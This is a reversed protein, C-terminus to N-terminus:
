DKYGIGILLLDKYLPTYKRKELTVKKYNLMIFCKIEKEMRFNNIAKEYQKHIFEYILEPNSCNSVLFGRSLGVIPDNYNLTTSIFPNIVYINKFNLSSIFIEINDPTIESMKIFMSKGNINIDISKDFNSLFTIDNISIYKKLQTTINM